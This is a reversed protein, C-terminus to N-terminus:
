YYLLQANYCLSILILVVKSRKLTIRIKTPHILREKGYDVVIPPNRRLFRM